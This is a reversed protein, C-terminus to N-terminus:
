QLYHLSPLDLEKRPFVDGLSVDVVAPYVFLKRNEVDFKKSLAEPFTNFDHLFVSTSESIKRFLLPMTEM